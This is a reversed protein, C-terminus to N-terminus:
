RGQGGDRLEGLVVIVIREGRVVGTGPALQRDRLLIQRRVRRQFGDASGGVGATDCLDLDRARWRDGGGARM